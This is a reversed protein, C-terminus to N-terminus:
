FMRRREETKSDTMWSCSDCANREWVYIGTVKATGLWSFACVRSMSFEHIEVAMLSGQSVINTAANQPESGRDYCHAFLSGNITNSIQANAFNTCGYCILLIFTLLVKHLVFTGELKAHVMSAQSLAALSKELLFGCVVALLAAEDEEYLGPLFV